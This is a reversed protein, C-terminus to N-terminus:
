VLDSTPLTLHTYSVPYYDVTMTVGLVSNALDGVIDPDNYDGWTFMALSGSSKNVVNSYQSLLDSGGTSGGTSGSSATTGDSSSSDDSGCATAVIAFGAAAGGAQFLARRSLMHRFSSPALIKIPEPQSAM